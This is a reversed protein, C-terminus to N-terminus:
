LRGYKPGGFGYMMGDIGYKTGNEGYMMGDFGYKTGFIAKL